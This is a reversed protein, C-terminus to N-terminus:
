SGISIPLLKRKIFNRLTLPLLDRITRSLLFHLWNEAQLDAVYQSGLLRRAELVAREYEKYMSRGASSLRGYSSSCWFFHLNRFIKFQHFHFFILKNNNNIVYGGEGDHSITNKSMNWPAGFGLAPELILLNDKYMEPWEDLYKQDGFRDADIFAHCWELCQKKYTALCERGYKNDSITIWQVCFKGFIILDMLHTSFDHPTITISKNSKTIRELLVFPNKFFFLDADLYTVVGNPSYKLGMELAIPTLTWCFEALTREKRLALVKKDLAEEIDILILHGLSLAALRDKTEQDICLVVIRSEPLWRRLSVIMALGRSLYHANFLTVFTHM